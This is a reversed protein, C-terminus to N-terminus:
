VRKFKLKKKKNWLVVVIVAIFNILVFSVSLFKVSLSIETTPERDHYGWYPNGHLTCYRTRRYFLFNANDKYEISITLNNYDNDSDYRWEKGDSTNYPFSVFKISVEGNENPYLKTSNCYPGFTLNFWVYGVTVNHKTQNISDYRVIRYTFYWDELHSVYLDPRGDRPGSRDIPGFEVTEIITANRQITGNESFIYSYIDEEDIILSCNQHDKINHKHICTVILLSFVFFILTYVFISKKM